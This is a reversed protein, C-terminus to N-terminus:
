YTNIKNYKINKPESHRKNIETTKIKNAQFKIECLRRRAFHSHLLITEGRSFGRYNTNYHSLFPWRNFNIPIKSVVEFRGWGPLFLKGFECMMKFSRYYLILITKPWMKWFRYRYYKCLFANPRHRYFFIIKM